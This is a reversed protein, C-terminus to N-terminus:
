VIRDSTMNVQRERYEGAVRWINDSSMSKGEFTFEYKRGSVMNDHCKGYKSAM